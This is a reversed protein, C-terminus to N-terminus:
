EKKKPKYKQLKGWSQGIAADWPIFVEYEKKKDQTENSQVIATTRANTKITTKITKTKNLFSEVFSDLKDNKVQILLADHVMALVQADPQTEAWLWMMNTIHPITSQPIFAYAKKYKFEDLHCTIKYKRGFPNVLTRTADIQERISRHWEPIEPFLKKREELLTKAKDFPIDIGAKAAFDMMATPGGDYNAMHNTIKGATDRLFKYKKPDTEIYRTIDEGMVMSATFTHIDAGEDFLDILKQCGALYAVIRAEAQEQDSQFLTYGEDAVFIDKFKVGLVSGRPINQINGGTLEMTAASTSRGTEAGEVNYDYRWRGDKDVPAELYSSQLKKAVRVIKLNRCFDLVEPTDTNRNILRNITKADTSEKYLDKKKAKPVKVKANQLATLVQKSSNSNFNNTVISIESKYSVKYLTRGKLNKYEKPKFIYEKNNLKYSSLIENVEAKKFKEPLASLSNLVDGSTVEIFNETDVVKKKKEKTPVYKNGFANVVDLHKALERDLTEIMKDKDSTDVKVGRLCAKFSPMWMTKTATLYFDWMGEAKLDRELEKMIRYEHIVDTACYDRLQKGTFKWGGKWINTLLRVRGQDELSKPLESYWLNAMHRTDYVDGRLPIGLGRELFWADYIFNQGVKNNEASMVKKIAEFCRETDIQNLEKFSICMAEDPNISLGFATIIDRWNERESAPKKKFETPLHLSEIDICVEDQEAAKNCYEVFADINNDTILNYSKEREGDIYRKVKKFAARVWIVNAYDERIDSPHIVPVVKTTGDGLFYCHVDELRHYGGTIHQLANLSQQGCAMIVKPKLKEIESRITFYSTDYEIKDRVYEYRVKTLGNLAALKRYYMGAGWAFSEGKYFDDERPYDGLILVDPETSGHGLM